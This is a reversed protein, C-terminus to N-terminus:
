VFLKSNISVLIATIVFKISLKIVVTNKVSSILSVIGVRLLTVIQLSLISIPEVTKVIVILM